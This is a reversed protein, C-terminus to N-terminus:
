QTAMPRFYLTFKALPLTKGSDQLANREFTSYRVTGENVEHVVATWGNWGIMKYQTGAKIENTTM